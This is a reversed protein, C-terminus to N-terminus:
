ARSCRFIFSDDIVVANYIKCIDQTSYKLKNFNTHRIPVTLITQQSVQSLEHLDKMLLDIPRHAIWYDSHLIVCTKMQSRRLIYDYIASEEPEVFLTNTHWPVQAHRFCRLEIYRSPFSLRWSGSFLWTIDQHDCVNRVYDLVQDSVPYVLADVIDAIVLPDDTHNNSIQDVIM